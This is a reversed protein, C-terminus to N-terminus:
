NLKGAGREFDRGRRSRPAAMADPEHDGAVLCHHTFVVAGSVRMETQEQEQGGNGTRPSRTGPNGTNPSRTRQSKNDSRRNKLKRKRSNRSNM